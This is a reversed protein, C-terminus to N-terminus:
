RAVPPDLAPRLSVRSSRVGGAIPEADFTASVTLDDGETDEVVLPGTFDLTGAVAGTESPRVVLSGSAADAEEIATFPDNVTRRYQATCDSESTGLPHTGTAPPGDGPCYVTLFANEDGQDLLNVTYTVGSETFVVGAVAAGSLSETRAGSLRATFTGPELENNESCAAALVLFTAFGAQRIARAKRM